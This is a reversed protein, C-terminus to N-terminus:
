CRDWWVQLALVRLEQRRREAQMWKISPVWMQSNRWNQVTSRMLRRKRPALKNTIPMPIFLLSPWPPPAARCSLRLAFCYPPPM